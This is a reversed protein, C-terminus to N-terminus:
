VSVILVVEHLIDAVIVATCNMRREVVEAVLTVGVHSVEVPLRGVLDRGERSLISTQILAGEPLILVEAIAVGACKGIAVLVRCVKIVLGKGVGLGLQLVRAARHAIARAFHALALLSLGPIAIGLQELQLLM